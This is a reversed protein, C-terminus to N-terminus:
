ALAGPNTATGRRQTVLGPQSASAPRLRARTRGRMAVSVKQRLDVRGPVTSLSPSAPPSLQPLNNLFRLALWQRGSAKYM